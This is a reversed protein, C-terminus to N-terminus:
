IGQFFLDRVKFGMSHSLARDDKPFPVRSLIQTSPSSNILVLIQSSSSSVYLVAFPLCYPQISQAYSLIKSRNMSKRVQIAVCMAFYFSLSSDAQFIRRSAVNM